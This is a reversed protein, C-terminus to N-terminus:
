FHKQNSPSLLDFDIMLGYYGCFLYLFLLAHFDLEGNVRTFYKRFFKFVILAFSHFSHTICHEAHTFAINVIGCSRIIYIMYRLIQHM